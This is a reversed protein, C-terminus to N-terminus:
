NLALLPWSNNRPRSAPQSPSLNLVYYVSTTKIATTPPKPQQLPAKTPSNSVFLIEYIENKTDDSERDTRGRVVVRVMRKKEQQGVVVQEM